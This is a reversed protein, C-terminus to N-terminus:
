GDTFKDLWAELVAREDDTMGTVNGLPMTETNVSLARILAAQDTMDQSSDFTIGKPPSAFGAQNPASSHCPTCRTTVILVGDEFTVTTPDIEPLNSEPFTVFALGLMALTAAPLIWVNRHGQGRLNFWHRIAAGVLILGALIAWGQDYGYTFPFHSSIMIFLVPLTMYNNHLSRLAAYKGLRIEPERGDAMANVLERQAPIIVFFVNGAMFTGLLAGVHIYAGRATFLQTLGIAVGVVLVFSVVGFGVPLELLKTRCMMDYVLWGVVLVGSGIVA